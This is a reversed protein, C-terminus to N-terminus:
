SIMTLLKFIGSSFPGCNYWYKLRTLGSNSGRIIKIVPPTTESSILRKRLRLLIGYILLGKLIGSIWFPMWFTTSAEDYPSSSRHRLGSSEQGGENDSLGCCLTSFEYTDATPRLLVMFLPWDFISAEPLGRQQLSRILSASWPRKTWRRLM